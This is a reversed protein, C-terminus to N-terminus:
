YRAFFSANRMFLLALVFLLFSLGACLYGWGFEEYIFIPLHSGLAGGAYYFSLYLGNAIGKQRVSISNLLASLVNHCTFCGACVVFMAGFIIWFHPYILLLVGVGFVIFGAAIARVKNGLFLIIYGACLSIVIGVLYSIYFAGITSERVFPDLTKLEIPLLSLIAQFTFFMLFAGGLIQLVRKNSLFPLFAKIRPTHHSIRKSDEIGFLWVGCGIMVVGFVFFCIHWGWMDTLTSGLVRGILGGTITASVYLSVNRQIHQTSIRTLITLLTTLIAPFFLAQVCRLVLFVFFDECFISAVQLVGCAFVSFIVINKANFRELLFGYLIPAIAMPFLTFSVLLTALHLSVGFYTALLPAIPQPMYVLSLTAIAVSLLCILQKTHFSM